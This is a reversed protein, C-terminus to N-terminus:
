LGPFDPEPTRVVAGCVRLKEGPVHHSLLQGRKQPSRLERQSSGVGDRERRGRRRGTGPSLPEYRIIRNGRADLIESELMLKRLQFRPILIPNLRQRGQPIASPPQVMGNRQRGSARRSVRGRARAGRMRLRLRREDSARTCHWFSGTVPCRASRRKNKIGVAITRRKQIKKKKKM